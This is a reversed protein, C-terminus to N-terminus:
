QGATCHLGGSRERARSGARGVAVNCVVVSSLCWGAFCCQRALLLQKVSIVTFHMTVCM